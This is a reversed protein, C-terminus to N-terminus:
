ALSEAPFYLGLRLRCCRTFRLRGFLSQFLRWKIGVVVHLPAVVFAPVCIVLIAFLSGAYEEWRGRRVASLYGIPIGVGM